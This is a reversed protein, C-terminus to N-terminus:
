APPQSTSRKQHPSRTTAMQLGPTGAHGSAYSYGVYPEMHRLFCFRSDARDWNAADRILLEVMGGWAGADAWDSDFRAIVAAAMIFYGYHFHHDNLETDAGYSAPYGILTSWTSDHAFFQQTTGGGPYDFTFWDLSLIDETYPTDCTVYVDHMGELQSPDTISMGMALETWTTWGGTSGLAAEAIVPGDLSDLRLSVMASGATGSAFRMVARTPLEAPFEVDTLRIWDGAGFGTAAQGEAGAVREMIVGQSDTAEEAQLRDAATLGDDSSATFWAELQAKMEDLLRERALVDGLEDAILALQAHRGLAKGCWYTDGPFTPTEGALETNLLNQLQNTDVTGTDPLLPLVPPCPVAVTFAATSTLTMPGRASQYQGWDDVGGDQNSHAVHHGYLCVLPESRSDTIFTYTTDVTRSGPNWTWSVRTDRVAVLARDTFRQITEPSADPLVATSIRSAGAATFTDGTQTWTTGEPGFLGWTQGGITMIVRRGEISISSAGGSGPNITVTPVGSEVEALVTPLGRGFTARMSRNGDSWAATVTWDGAAAVRVDPAQLDQVGITLAHTGSTFHYGYGAGTPSPTAVHGIRLGASEAQVSLPHPHMPQGFPNDAYRPWVLSSWWTNTPVPGNFDDTVQPTVAEGSINSPGATGEPLAAWYSGSGVPEPDIAALSIPALSLLVTSIGVTSFHGRPM